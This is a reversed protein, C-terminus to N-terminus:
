ILLDRKFPNKKLFIQSIDIERFHINESDNDHGICEIIRIAIM